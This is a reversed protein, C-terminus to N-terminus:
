TLTVSLEARTTACGFLHCAAADDIQHRGLSISHLYILCPQLTEKTACRVLTQTVSLLSWQDETRVMISM